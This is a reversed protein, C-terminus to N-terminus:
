EAETEVLVLDQKHREREGAVVEQHAVEMRLMRVMLRLGKGVTVAM